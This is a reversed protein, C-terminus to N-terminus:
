VPPQEVDERWFAPQTYAAYAGQYGALRAVPALASAAGALANESVFTTNGDLIRVESAM